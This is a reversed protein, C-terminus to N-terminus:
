SFRKLSPMYQFYPTHDNICFCANLSRDLFLQEMSRLTMSFTNSPMLGKLCQPLTEGQTRLM